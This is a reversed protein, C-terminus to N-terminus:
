CSPLNSCGKGRISPNEPPFLITTAQTIMGAFAPDTASTAPTSAEVGTMSQENICFAAVVRVRANADSALRPLGSVDGCLADNRVSPPADFVLVVRYNDVPTFAPDTVFEVDPGFHSGYMAATVTEAFQATDGAFPQGRIVTKVGGSKAAYSLTNPTYLPAPSRTEQSITVGCAPLLLAAGLIATLQFLKAYRGSM